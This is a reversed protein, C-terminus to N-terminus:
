RKAGLIIVWFPRDQGGLPGDVVGVGLDQVQPLLINKRHGASDMWDAVVDQVSPQGAAVNEAGARYRYGFEDLRAALDDGNRGRHGVDGTTSLYQAHDDAAAMLRRDLVLPQLREAARIDNLRALMDQAVADPAATAATPLVLVGLILFRAACLLWVRRLFRHM